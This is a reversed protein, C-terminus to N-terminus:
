FSLEEQLSEYLHNAILKYGFSTPHVFDWWIIGEELHDALYEHMNIFAIQHEKAVEEMIQHTQLKQKYEVSVAEAVFVLKFNHKQSLYVFDKLTDEFNVGDEYEEDNNSLNIIVMDPNIKLWQNKFHALLDKSTQGDRGANIVEFRKKSTLFDQNVLKEFQSVFDEGELSIGEGTTQSSGIFMIKTRKTNGNSYNALLQEDERKMWAAEESKFMNTSIEFKEKLKEILSNGEYYQGRLITSFTLLIINTLILAICLAFNFQIISKLLKEKKKTVIWIGFDILLITSILIIFNLWFHSLNDFDENFVVQDYDNEIRLDDILLENMGTRFAISGNTPTKANYTAILKENYFVEVIHNKSDNKKLTLEQWDTGNLEKIAIPIYETFEGTYKASILASRYLPSYSIRVASFNQKTKNFIVYLYSDQDPLFRLSLKKWSLPTKLVVEHWGRWASLNLSNKALAPLKKEFDDGDQGPRSLQTKTIQWNKNNVLTNTFFLYNLLIISVAILQIGITVGILIRKKIKENKM